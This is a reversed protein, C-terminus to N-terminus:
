ELKLFEFLREKRALPLQEVLYGIVVRHRLWEGPFIGTLIEIRSKKEEVGIIVAIWMCSVAVIQVRAFYLFVVSKFRSHIVEGAM